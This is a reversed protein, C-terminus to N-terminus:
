DQILTAYSSACINAKSALIKFIRRDAKPKGGTEEEIYSILKVSFLEAINECVDDGCCDGCNERVDFPYDPDFLEFM